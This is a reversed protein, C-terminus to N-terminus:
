AIIRRSEHGEDQVLAVLQERARAVRSRITGVPCNCVEAADAYSYGLVQTLVFAERRDIDLDALLAHTSIPGAHDAMHTPARDSVSHARRRQRAAIDDAVVRRVITFLWPRVPADGRFRPLAKLARLYTEQTLDDAADRDGLHACLRWVDNQTACVFAHLASEDGTRAALALPTWTDM